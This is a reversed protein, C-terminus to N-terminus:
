IFKYCPHLALFLGFLLVYCLEGKIKCSPERGNWTGDPQCTQVNIGILNYGINCTYAATHYLGTGRSLDVM